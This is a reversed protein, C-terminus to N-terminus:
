LVFPVSFISSLYYREILFKGEEIIINDSEADFDDNVEPM